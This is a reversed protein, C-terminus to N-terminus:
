RTGTAVPRGWADRPVAGETTATATACAALSFAVCMTLVIRTM